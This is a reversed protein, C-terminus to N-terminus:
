EEAQSIHFIRAVLSSGKVPFKDHLKKHLEYVDLCGGSRQLLWKDFSVPNQLCYCVMEHILEYELKTIEM